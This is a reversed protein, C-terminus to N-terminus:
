ATPQRHFAWEWFNVLFLGCFVLIVALWVWISPQDGFLAIGLGVGVLTAIYNSTSFFLPGTLQILEYVLILMIANNVMAIIIAGETLGFGESFAWTEGSVLMIVALIVTSTALLGAILPLSKMGPPRLHPLLVSRLAWSVPAILGLAVWGAMDPSPLSARPLLVLLVGALGFLLGALKYYRFRELHFPLMIAYILVPILALGISLVGPPVRPAALALVTFPVVFNLLALAVYTKHARWSFIPPMTRRAVCIAFVILTAGLAQWFVYAIVPVGGGTVVKNLPFMGGFCLGLIILMGVAPVTIVTRHHSDAGSARPPLPPPPGDTMEHVKRQQPKPLTFLSQRLERSRRSITVPTPAKRM